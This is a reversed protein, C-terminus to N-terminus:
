SFYYPLNEVFLFLVVVHGLVEVELYIDLPFSTVIEFLYRYGMNVADNNVITLIHLCGVHRDISLHLFFIQYRYTIYYIAHM